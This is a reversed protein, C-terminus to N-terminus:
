AMISACKRIRPDCAVRILEIQNSHLHKRSDPLHNRLIKQCYEIPDLRNIIKNFIYEDLSTGRINNSKRINELQKKLAENNNKIQSLDFM